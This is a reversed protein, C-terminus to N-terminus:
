TSHEDKLVEEIEPRDNLGYHVRYTKQNLSYVDTHTRQNNSSYAPDKFKLMLWVYEYEKGELIRTPPGFVTKLFKRYDEQTWNKTREAWRESLNEFTKSM